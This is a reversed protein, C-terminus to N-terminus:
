TSAWRNALEEELEPFILPRKKDFRNQLLENVWGKIAVSARSPPRRPNHLELLKEIQQIM